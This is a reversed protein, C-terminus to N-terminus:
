VVSKRDEINDPIIEVGNPAKPSKQVTGTVTVITEKRAARVDAMMEESLKKSPATLQTIGNKDRILVFVIGGLDRIEHVWGTIKVTEGALDETLENSYHTRRAKEFIDTM